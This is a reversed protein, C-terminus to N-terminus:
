RKREGRREERSEWNEREGERKCRFNKRRSSLRSSSFGGREEGRSRQNERRADRPSPFKRRSPVAHLVGRERGRMLKGYGRKKGIERREKKEKKRREKGRREERSMSLM